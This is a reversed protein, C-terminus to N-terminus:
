RRQQQPNRLGRFHKIPHLLAKQMNWESLKQQQQQKYLVIVAIEYSFSDRKVPM